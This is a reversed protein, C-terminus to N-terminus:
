SPLEGYWAWIPGELERLPSVSTGDDNDWIDEEDASMWGNARENWRVASWVVSDKGPERAAGKYSVLIWPGKPPPEPRPQLFSLSVKVVEGCRDGPRETVRSELETREDVLRTVAEELVELPYTQARQLSDGIKQPLSMPAASVYSKARNLDEIKSNLEMWKEVAEKVNM